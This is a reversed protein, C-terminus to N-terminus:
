TWLEKNFFNLYDEKTNINCLIREDSTEINRREFSKLVEQLNNEIYKRDVIFKIVEKGLLVPHGGKGNFVPVIYDAGPLEKEMMKLVEINVFPNDSNHIFCAHKNELMSLGMVVSDLRGSSPNNNLVIKIKEIETFKKRVEDNLVVVIESSGFTRYAEIIHELFTQHRSFKLLPKMIGMRESLGAALVVVNLPDSTEKKLM